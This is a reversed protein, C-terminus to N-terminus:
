KQVEKLIKEAIFPPVAAYDEPELSFTARGQSLGRLTSAYNFMEAMPVKGRIERLEGTVAIEALEVRRTNL